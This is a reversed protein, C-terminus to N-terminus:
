KDLVMWINGAKVEFGWTGTYPFGGKKIINSLTESSITFVVGHSDRILFRAMRTTSDDVHYIFAMTDQIKTKITIPEYPLPERKKKENEDQTFLYSPTEQYEGDQKKEKELWDKFRLKWLWNLDTKLYLSIVRPDKPCNSRQLIKEEKKFEPFRRFTVYRKVLAM